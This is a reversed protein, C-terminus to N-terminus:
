YSVVSPPLQHVHGGFQQAAMEVASTDGGAAETVSIVAAICDDAANLDWGITEDGGTANSTRRIMSSTGGGFDNENIDTYNTLPALGAPVGRGTMDVGMCYTEVSAGNALTLSHPDLSDSTLTDTDEIEGDDSATMSVACAIKPDAGSVNVEVTQAGTPVSTLLSYIYSAGAEGSSKSALAERTMGSGGYTVSSVEDTVTFTQAIMVIIARPTGSPTHTWSLTSTDESSVSEADYAIAM